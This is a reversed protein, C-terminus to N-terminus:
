GPNGRQRQTRHEHQQGPEDFEIALRVCIPLLKEAAKMWEHHMEGDAQQDKNRQKFDGACKPGHQAFSGGENKGECEGGAQEREREAEQEGHRVDEALPQVIGRRFQHDIQGVHCRCEEIKGRVVHVAQEIRTQTM